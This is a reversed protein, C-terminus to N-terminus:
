KKQAKVINESVKYKVIKKVLALPLPKDLPFQIAGKSTKYVKLENKFVIVPSAGPYFGIHNKYAAFYVLPKNNLKFAPMGYSIIEIAGPACKRITTRLQALLQQTEKPFGNCYEDINGPAPKSTLM